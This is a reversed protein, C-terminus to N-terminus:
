DNSQLTQWTIEYSGNNGDVFLSNGTIMVSLEMGRDINEALAELSQNDFCHINASYSSMKNQSQSWWVNSKSNFAYIDVRKALRTAKKVRELSPEGVEIWHEITDDLAKNWLDPEEITSLGKTFELEPKANLCFALVRAMMRTTTESPHLAITCQLSDYYDRNTDSLSIRFKFITPKLAM